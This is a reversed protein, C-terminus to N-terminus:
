SRPKPASYDLRISRGCCMENNLKVAKDVTESDYFEVFGCGKFEGSEKDTLWRIQKIDGCDKFFAMMQDDDIDYSLNGCFVTTCNDPRASMPRAERPARGPTQPKEEWIRVKLPRGMVEETENLLVAKGAADTSEFEVIGSGKFMGTERDEMWDIKVIKGTKGEVAAKLSDEDIKFSLNSMFVKTSTCSAIEAAKKTEQNKIVMKPEEDDSEEEEESEEKVVEVKKKKEKKKKKPTEEEEDELVEEKKEKKKKKPKEEEVEVEEKKMKKKSKEEEKEVEVEKEKKKKKKKEEKVEVVEEEAEKKRKKDKKTKEAKMEVEEVPEKKSKKSEKAKGM